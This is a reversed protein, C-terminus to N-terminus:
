QQRYVSDCQVKCFLIEVPIFKRVLISLGFIPSFLYAGFIQQSVADVYVCACGRMLMRLWECGRMLMCLCAVCHYDLVVGHMHQRALHLLVPTCAYAGSVAAVTSALEQSRFQTAASSADSLNSTSGNGCCKLGAAPLVPDASPKESKVNEEADDPSIETINPAKRRKRKPKTQTAPARKKSSNTSKAQKNDSGALILHSNKPSNVLVEEPLHNDLLFNRVILYELNKSVPNEIPCTRAQFALWEGSRSKMRFIPTLGEKRTGLVQRHFTMLDALDDRHFLDYGSKGHLDEPGYGLLDRVRSDVFTHSGTLDTRCFYSKASDKPKKRPDEPQQIIHPSQLIGYFECGVLSTEDLVPDEEDDLTLGSFKGRFYGSIQCPSFMEVEDELSSQPAKGKLWNPATAVQHALDSRKLRFTFKRLLEEPLQGPVTPEATNSARTAKGKRQQSPMSQARMAHEGQILLNADPSALKKRMIEVDEWHVFDTIVQGVLEAESIGVIQTINASCSLLKYTKCCIVFYIGQSAKMILDMHVSEPVFSSPHEEDAYQKSDSLQVKKLLEIIAKLKDLKDRKKIDSGFPLMGTMAVIMEKQALRRKREVESHSDKMESASLPKPADPKAQHSKSRQSTSRKEAKAVPLVTKRKPAVPKTPPNSSALPTNTAEAHSHTTNSHNCTAQMAAPAATATTELGLPFGPRDPLQQSNDHNPSSSVANQGGSREGGVIHSFGGSSLDTCSPATPAAPDPVFSQLATGYGINQLMNLMFQAGDATDANPLNPVQDSATAHNPYEM